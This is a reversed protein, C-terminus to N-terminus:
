SNFNCKINDYENFMEEIIEKVSQIKNVMGSIQGAMLSGNDIDGDIVAKKLAGKGLEELEEINVNNNELKLYEKALRYNDVTRDIRDVLFKEM